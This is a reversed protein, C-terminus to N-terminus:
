WLSLSVKGWNEDYTLILKKDVVIAAMGNQLDSM